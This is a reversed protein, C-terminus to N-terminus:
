SEDLIKNDESQTLLGSPLNTENVVLQLM